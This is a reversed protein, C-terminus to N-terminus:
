QSSHPSASSELLTVSPLADSHLQSRAKDKAQRMPCTAGFFLRGRSVTLVSQCRPSTVPPISILLLRRRVVITAGAISPQTESSTSAALQLVGSCATIAGGAVIAEAAGEGVGAGGGTTAGGAGVGV